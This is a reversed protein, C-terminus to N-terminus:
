EALRKMMRGYQRDMKDAASQLRQRRADADHPASRVVLRDEEIKTELPVGPSLGLRDVTSRDLKLYFDDGHQTLTATM